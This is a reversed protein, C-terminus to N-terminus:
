HLEDDETDENIDTIKYIAAMEWLFDSLVQIEDMQNSVLQRSLDAECIVKEIFEHETPRFDLDFADNYNWAERETHFQKAKIPDKTRQGAGQWWELTQIDELLWVTKHDPIKAEGSVREGNLMNEIEKLRFSELPGMAEMNAFPTLKDVCWQCADHLQSLRLRQGDIITQKLDEDPKPTEGSVGDMENALKRLEDASYYGKVFLARSKLKQEKM